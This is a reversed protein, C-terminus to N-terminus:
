IVLESNPKKCSEEMPAMSVGPASSEQENTQQQESSRASRKFIIVVAIMSAIFITAHVLRMSLPNCIISTHYPCKAGFDGNEAPFPDPEKCDETSKVMSGQMVSDDDLLVVEEINQNYDAVSSHSHTSYLSVAFIIASTMLILSLCTVTMPVSSKAGM